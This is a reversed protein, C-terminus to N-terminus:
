EREKISSSDGENGAGGEKPLPENPFRGKINKAYFSGISNSKMMEEYLEVPVGHYPYTTVKGHFQILLVNQVLDYGVAAISSSTVPTLQM